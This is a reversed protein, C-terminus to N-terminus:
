TTAPDQVAEIPKLATAIFQLYREVLQNDIEDQHYVDTLVNKFEVILHNKIKNNARIPGTLLVHLNVLNLIVIPSLRKLPIM